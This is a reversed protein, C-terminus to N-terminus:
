VYMAITTFIALWEGKRKETSKPLAKGSQPRATHSEKALLAVAFSAESIGSASLSTRKSGESVGLGGRSSARTLRNHPSLTVEASGSGLM